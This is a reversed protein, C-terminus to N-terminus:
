LMGQTRKSRWVVVATMLLTIMVSVGIFPVLISIPPEQLLRGTLACHQFYMRHIKMFFADVVQNPWFCDMRLAVQYTCNTLGEYIQMTEPWSCWLDLDLRGMDIQFIEMCFHNIKTEYFQGDCGPVLPNVSAALLLLLLLGVRLLQAMSSVLKM